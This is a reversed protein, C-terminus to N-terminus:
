KATPRHPVLLEGGPDLVDDLGYDSVLAELQDVDLPPRASGAADEAHEHVLGATDADVVALADAPLHAVEEVHRAEDVVRVIQLDRRGADLPPEAGLPLVAPRDALPHPAPGGRALLQAAPQGLHGPFPQDELAIALADLNRPHVDGLCTEVGVHRPRASCSHVPIFRSSIATMSCIPRSFPISLSVRKSASSDARSDADRLVSPAASLM